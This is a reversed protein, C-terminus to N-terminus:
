KPLPKPATLEGSWDPESRGIRPQQQAAEGAAATKLRKNDHEHTLCPLGQRVCTMEATMCFYPEISRENFTLSTRLSVEKRRSSKGANRTKLPHIQTRHRGFLYRRASEPALRGRLCDNLQGPSSMCTSQLPCAVTFDRDAREISQHHCLTFM